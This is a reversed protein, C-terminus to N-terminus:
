WAAVWRIFQAVYSTVATASAATGICCLGLAFLAVLLSIFSRLSM